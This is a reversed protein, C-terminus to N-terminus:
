KRKLTSTEIKNKLIANSRRKLLLKLTDRRTRNIPPPPLHLHLARQAKLGPDARQGQNAGPDVSEISKSMSMCPRRLQFMLNKLVNSKSQRKSLKNSSHRRPMVNLEKLQANRRKSKSSVIVSREKLRERKKLKVSNVSEIRVSEKERKRANRTKANEKNV